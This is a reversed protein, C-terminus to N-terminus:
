TFQFLIHLVISVALPLWWMNVRPPTPAPRPPASNNRASLVLKIFFEIRKRLMLIEDRYLARSILGFCYMCTPFFTRLVFVSEFSLVIDSAYVGEVVAVWEYLVVAAILLYSWTRASAYAKGMHFISVMAVAQISWAALTIKVRLLCDQERQTCSPGYRNYLRRKEEDALIEYAHRYANFTDTHNAGVKDPHHHKSVHRWARRIDRKSANLSVNLMSYYNEGLEMHTTVYTQLIGACLLFLIAYLIHKRRLQSVVPWIFCAYVLTSLM